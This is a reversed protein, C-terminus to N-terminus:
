EKIHNHHPHFPIQHHHPVHLQDTYPFMYLYYLYYLSINPTQKGDPNLCAYTTMTTPTSEEMRERQRERERERMTRV